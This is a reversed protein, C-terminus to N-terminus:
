TPNLFYYKMGANKVCCGLEELMLDVEHVFFKEIDIIDIHHNKGGVYTRGPPETLMGGYYLKMALLTPYFEYVSIVDDQTEPKGLLYGDVSM